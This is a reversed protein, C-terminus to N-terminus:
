ALYILELCRKLYLELDNLPYQFDVIINGIAPLAPKTSNLDYNRNQYFETNNNSSPILAFLATPNFYGGNSHGLGHLYKFTLKEWDFTKVTSSKKYKSDFILVKGNDFELFFDPKLSNDKRSFRKQTIFSTPYGEVYLSHYRGNKKDHFKILKPIGEVIDTIEFDYGLSIFVDILKFLCAREFLKDMRTIGQYYNKNDTFKIRELNFWEIFKQYVFQYHNKSSIKHTPIYDLVSVTVPIYDCLYSKIIQLDTELEAILKHKRKLSYYHVIEIFNSRKNESIETAWSKNKQNIYSILVDVFGHIFRNELIDTSELTHFTLMEAPKYSQNQLLIKDNDISSSQSLTDLNQALWYLSDDNVFINSHYELVHEAKIYTIFKDFSFMYLKVKMEKVLDQLFLLQWDEKDLNNDPKAENRLLSYKTWLSVSKNELYDVLCILEDEDIKNSTVNISFDSIKEENMEDFLVIESLGIPYNVFLMSMKVKEIEKSYDYYNFGEQNFYEKISIDTLLYNFNGDILGNEELRFPFDTIFVLLENIRLKKTSQINIAIYDTENVTDGLELKLKGNENSKYCVWQISEM